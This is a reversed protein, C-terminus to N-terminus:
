DKGARRALRSRVNTSTLERLADKGVWRSASNDSEALRHAVAVAAENLTASRKGITRLAWNVAKKVFNREDTAGKEILKLLPLFKSDPAAKDHVTLSAMLAFGARKVFEDRHKSWKPVKQWAHPTRDFLHFCLSDCIAWSDFDRCWRDMQASTVRAPEDVFSTLMRAEYVGTEWLAAALEHNRGLQKGLARINGVSVGLANDSPIAYRAMGDRTSKSSHRRLWVLASRVQDDISKGERETKDDRTKIAKRPM